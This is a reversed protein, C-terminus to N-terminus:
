IHKVAIGAAQKEAAEVYKAEALTVEVDFYSAGNHVYLQEATDSKLFYAEDGVGSVPLVSQDPVHDTKTAQFAAQAMLEIRIGAPGAKSTPLWQCSGANATTAATQDGWDTETGLVSGAEVNTLLACPNAVKGTATSEGGLVM